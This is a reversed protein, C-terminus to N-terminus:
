FEGKYFFSSAEDECAQQWRPLTAEGVINLNKYILVFGDALSLRYDSDGKFFARVIERLVLQDM